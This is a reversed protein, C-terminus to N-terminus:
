PFDLPDPYKFEFSLTQKVKQNSVIKFSGKEDNFVPAELGEKKAAALYFDERSPHKDSVVNFSDGWHDGEIIKQIVSICDDLHVLNVLTNGNPIDKKGALFSGAKRGPGTLGAFRLICLNEFRDKLIEEAALVAKGSARVPDPRTNEDVTDDNNPYVGTSSAFIIKSDPPLYGFLSSIKGVYTKLLDPDKRGPPINLFLIDTDFFDKEYIGDATLVMRSPEIDNEQLLNLKDWRTTSGKVYYSESVLRKALPFGLWGCGLISIKKM